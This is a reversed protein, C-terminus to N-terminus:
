GLATDLAATHILVKIGTGNFDKGKEKPRQDSYSTNTM